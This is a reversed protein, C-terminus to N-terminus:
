KEEKMRIKLFDKNLGPYTTRSIELNSLSAKIEMRVLAEVDKRTMGSDSKEIADRRAKTYTGILAMVQVWAVIITLAGLIYITWWIVSM